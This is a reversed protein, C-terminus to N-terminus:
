KHVMVEWLKQRVGHIKIEVLYFGGLLLMYTLIAADEGCGHQFIGVRTILAITFHCCIHADSRQACKHLMLDEEDQM